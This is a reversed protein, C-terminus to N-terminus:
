GANEWMVRKRYHYDFAYQVPDILRRAASEKQPNWCELAGIVLESMISPMNNENYEYQSFCEEHIYSIMPKLYDMLASLTEEEKEEDLGYEPDRARKYDNWLEMVKNDDKCFQWVHSPNEMDFKKKPLANTAVRYLEDLSYRPIGHWHAVFNGVTGNNVLQDVRSQLERRENVMIIHPAEIEMLTRFRRVRYMLREYNENLDTPMLVPNGEADVNKKDQVYRMCLPMVPVTHLIYKATDNVGKFKLLEEIAETSTLFTGGIVSGERQWEKYPYYPINESWDDEKRIFGNVYILRNLEIFSMDLVRMLEPCRGTTYQVNVVPIPLEIHGMLDLNEEGMKGFIKEDILTGDNSTPKEEEDEYPIENSVEGNSNERIMEDTVDVMKALDIAISSYWKKIM